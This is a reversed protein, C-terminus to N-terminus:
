LVYLGTHYVKQGLIIDGLQKHHLRCCCKMRKGPLIINGQTSVGREIQRNMLKHTNPRIRSQNNHVISSQINPYIFKEYAYTKMEDRPEM